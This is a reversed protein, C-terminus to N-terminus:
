KEKASLEMQRSLSSFAAQLKSIEVEANEKELLKQCLRDESVNVAIEAQKLRAQLENVKLHLCEASNREKQLMDELQMSRVQLSEKEMDATDKAKRCSSLSRRAQELNGQLTSVRQKVHQLEELQWQLQKCEFELDERETCLEMHKKMLTAYEMQLKEMKQCRIAHVHLEMEKRSLTQELEHLKAQLHLCEQQIQIQHMDMHKSYVPNMMGSFHLHNKPEIKTRELTGSSSKDVRMRVPLELFEDLESSATATEKRKLSEVTDQLAGITKQQNLVELKYANLQSRLHENEEQVDQFQLKLKSEDGGEDGHEEINQESSLLQQLTHVELEKMAIHHHLESISSELHVIVRDRQLVEELAQDREHTVGALQSHLRRIEDSWIKMDESDREDHRSRNEVDSGNWSSTMSELLSEHSKICTDEEGDGVYGSDGNEKSCPDEKIESDISESENPVYFDDANFDDDFHQLSVMLNRASEACPQLRSNLVEAHQRTEQELQTFTSILAANQEELHTFCQELFSVKLKTLDDEDVDSTENLEKLSEECCTTFKNFLTSIDSEEGSSLIPVETKTSSM